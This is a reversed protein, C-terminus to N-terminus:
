PKAAAQVADRFILYTQTASLHQDDRASIVLRNSGMELPVEFTVPLEAGPERNRAYHVKKDGLYAYFDEVQHDDTVKVNVVLRDAVTRLPLVEAFSFGPPFRTEEARYSEGIRFKLSDSFFTSFDRDVVSVGIVVEGDESAKVLRFSMPTLASGGAALGELKHRATELYLEEKEDGRINVEAVDSTALGRNRVQLELSVREGVELVGDGSRKPDAPNEDAMHYGYAFEPKAVASTRATGTGEGMDGAGAARLHLAFTDWRDQASKPVEVKQTWGRTEGPDIRGFVFDLNNLLPNDSETRGWVRHAPATGVNKVQLTLEATVGATLQVEAGPLVQMEAGDSSDDGDWVVAFGALAERIRATEEKRVAGLVSDAAAVLAERAAGATSPLAGFVRRAFRVEFDEGLRQRKEEPDLEAFSREDEDKEVVPEFFQLETVPKGKSNGWESFANDLDAEKVHDPPPGLRVRGEEVQAPYV